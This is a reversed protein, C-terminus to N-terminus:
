NNGGANTAGPANYSTSFAEVTNDRYFGLGAIFIGTATVNTASTVTCRSIINGTATATNLSIGRLLPTGTGNYIIQSVFCDEILTAASSVSIGTIALNVDTATTTSGTDIVRCRRMTCSRANSSNLAIGNLKGGVLTLDEFVVNNVAQSTGLCTGGGIIRGNRIVVNSAATTFGIAYASTNTSRVTMGNLDITVNDSAIIIPSGNTTLDTTLLYSGPQSITTAATIRIRGDDPTTVKTYIEDLTRGTSSVAGGPPTLPGALVISVFATVACAVVIATRRTKM